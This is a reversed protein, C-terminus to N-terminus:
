RQGFVCVYVCIWVFVHANERWRVSCRTCPNCPTSPLFKPFSHVACELVGDKVGGVWGGGVSAAGPVYSPQVGMHTVLIGGTEPNNLDQLQFAPAGMGLVQCNQSCCVPNGDVDTCEPATTNCAPPDGWYQVAVGAKDGSWGPTCQFDSYGCINLSYSHQTSDNASYSAGTACLPRLDFRHKSHPPCVLAHSFVSTHNTRHTVTHTDDREQTDGPRATSVIAKLALGACM